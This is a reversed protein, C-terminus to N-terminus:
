WNLIGPEHRTVVISSNAPSWMTCALVSFVCHSFEIFNRTVYSQLHSKHHFPQSHFSIIEQTLPSSRDNQVTDCITLKHKRTIKRIVYAIQGIQLFIGLIKQVKTSLYYSFLLYSRACSSCTYEIQVANKVSIDVYCLININNEWM